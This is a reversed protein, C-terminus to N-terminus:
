PEPWVSVMMLQPDWVSARHGRQYALTLGAYADSIIEDSAAKM